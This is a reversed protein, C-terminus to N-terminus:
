SKRQSRAKEALTQAVRVVEGCDFPKTLFLLRENNGLKKRIDERSYDSYATCIVIQLDPYEQWIRSVTEIGDWGPPMRVDVFAFSYPRNREAAQRVLKLGDQGQYASDIEFGPERTESTTPGFFASEFDDLMSTEAKPPALIKRFDEHIAQNDDIVLIYDSNPHDPKNMM